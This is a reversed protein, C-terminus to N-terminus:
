VPMTIAPTGTCNPFATYYDMKYEYVPNKKEKQNLIDDIKPPLEGIAVPSLIFDINNQEFMTCYEEIILRRIKQADIVKENFDEFRSSLLFNGLIVRRKVNIGFAESRVREIYDFLETKKKKGEM